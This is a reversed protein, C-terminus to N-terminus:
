KGWVRTVGLQRKALGEIHGKHRELVADPKWLPSGKGRAVIQLIDRDGPELRDEIAFRIDACWSAYARPGVAECLATRYAVMAREEDDFEFVPVPVPRPPAGTKEMVQKEKAHRTDVAASFKALSHAPETMSLFTSQIVPVATKRIDIGAAIWGKVIDMSQALLAPRSAIRASLGAADCCLNTLAFLDDQSGENAPRDAVRPATIESQENTTDLMQSRPRARARSPISAIADGSHSNQAMKSDPLAVASSSLKAPKEALKKATQPRTTNKISDHVAPANANQSRGNEATEHSFLDAGREWRENAAAARKESIQQREAVVTLARENSLLGDRANLKGLQILRARCRNWARTTMGARRALWQADDPVASGRDWILALVVTYAGTEEATLDMIGTLFDSAYFKVWPTRSM